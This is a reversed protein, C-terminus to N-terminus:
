RRGAASRERDQRALDGMTKSFLHRPINVLAFRRRHFSRNLTQASETEPFRAVGLVKLNQGQLNSLPFHCLFLAKGRTYNECVKASNRHKEYGSPRLNL